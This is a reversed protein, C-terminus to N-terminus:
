SNIDAVTINKIIGKYFIEVRGGRLVEKVIVPENYTIQKKALM